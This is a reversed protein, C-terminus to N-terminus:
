NKAFQKNISSGDKLKINLLYIGKSFSDVDISFITAGERKVNAYMKKGLMDYIELSSSFLETASVIILNDNAPNPFLKIEILKEISVTGSGPEVIGVFTGEAFDSPVGTKSFVVKVVGYGPIENPKFDVYVLANSDPAFVFDAYNTTEGHCLSPDCVYTTWGTTLYLVSRQWTSNVTDPTNNTLYNLIGLTYYPDGQVDSFPVTVSLSDDSLTYTQGFSFNAILLFLISFINKM